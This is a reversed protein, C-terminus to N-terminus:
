ERRLCTNQQILFLASRTQGPCLTLPEEEVVVIQEMPGPAGQGSSVRKAVGVPLRALNVDLANVCGDGNVDARPDFGSDGTCRGLSALISERVPPDTDDAAVAESTLALPSGLVSGWVFVGFLPTTTM